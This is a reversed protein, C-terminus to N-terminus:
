ATGIHIDKAIEMLMNKEEQAYWLAAKFFIAHEPDGTRLFGEDIAKWRVQDRVVQLAHNNLANSASERLKGTSEGDLLKGQISIRGVQDQVILSRLPVADMGKLLASMLVQKDKLSWNRQLFFSLLRTLM